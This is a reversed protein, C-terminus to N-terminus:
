PKQKCYILNFKVKAQKNKKGKAMANWEDDEREAISKM